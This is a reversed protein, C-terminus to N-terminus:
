SPFEPLSGGSGPVGIVELTVFGLGALVALVVLVTLWAIAAIKAADLWDGPYRRGILGVYVAFLLAQGLLPVWGFLLGGGVLVLAGILGTIAANVYDHSDVVTRAGLYVGLGGTLLSAVFTTVFVM